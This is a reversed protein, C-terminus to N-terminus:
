LLSCCLAVCVAVCPLVSCCVAVCQLVSCCVAVCQLVHLVSCCVKWSVIVEMKMRTVKVCVAVCQLVSCCVAVCQLVSCCVKWSVVVEMKMRTVKWVIASLGGNKGGSGLVAGQSFSFFLFNLVCEFCLLLLFDFERVAMNKVAEM